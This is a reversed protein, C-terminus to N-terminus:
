CCSINLPAPKRMFVVCNPWSGLQEGRLVASVQICFYVGCFPYARPAKYVYQRTHKGTQNVNNNLIAMCVSESLSQSRLSFEVVLRVEQLAHKKKQKVAFPSLVKRTRQDHMRHVCSVNCLLRKYVINKTEIQNAPNENIVIVSPPPNALSKRSKLNKNEDPLYDGM